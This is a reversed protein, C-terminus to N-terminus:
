PRPLRTLEADGAAHGYRARPNNAFRQTCLQVVDDGAVSGTSTLDANITLTGTESVSGASMHLRRLPSHM